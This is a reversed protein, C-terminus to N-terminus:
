AAGGFQLKVMVAHREDALALFRMIRSGIAEFTVGCEACWAAIEDIAAADASVFVAEPEFATEFDAVGGARMSAQVQRFGELGMRWIRDRAM